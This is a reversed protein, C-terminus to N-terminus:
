NAKILNSAAKEMAQKHISSIASEDYTEKLMEYFVGLTERTMEYDYLYKRNTVLEAIDDKTLEQSQQFRKEQERRIQNYFEDTIIVKKRAKNFKAQEYVDMETDKVLSLYEKLSTRTEAADCFVLNLDKDSLSPIMAFTIYQNLSESLFLKQSTLSKRTM